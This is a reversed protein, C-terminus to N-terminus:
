VAASASAIRMGEIAVPKPIVAEPASELLRSLFLSQACADGRECGVVQGKSIIRLAEYGALAHRAAALSTFYQKGNAPRQIGRHDQEIMNNDHHSNRCRTSKALIRDRKLARVAIPYTPNGDVVIEEPMRRGAVAMAKRLFLRAAHVDRTESLYFDVTAGHADVARYLYVWQGAARIYTQDARWQTGTPRLHQRLRRDLEPGYRDVWRWLTTHAVAVGRLALMEVVNRYSLSYRLYWWLASIIVDDPFHRGKFLPAHHWRTM